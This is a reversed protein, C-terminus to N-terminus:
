LPGFELKVRESPLWKKMILKTEHFSCHYIKYIKSYMKKLSLNRNMKMFDFM